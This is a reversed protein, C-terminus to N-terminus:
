KQVSPAPTAPVIVITPKLPRLRPFRPQVVVAPQPTAFLLSTTILITKM